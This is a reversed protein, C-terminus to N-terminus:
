QLLPQNGRRKGWGDKGKGRGKGGGNEGGRERRGGEKGEGDGKGWRRRGYKRFISLIAKLKKFWKNLKM